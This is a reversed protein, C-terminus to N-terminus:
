SSAPLEDFHLIYYRSSLEFAAELSYDYGSLWRADVGALHFNDVTGFKFHWTRDDHANINKYVHALDLGARSFDLKSKHFRARRLTADSRLLMVNRLVGAFGDVM